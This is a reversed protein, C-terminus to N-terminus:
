NRFAFKLGIAVLLVGGLALAIPQWAFESKSKLQSAKLDKREQGDFADKVSAAAKAAGTVFAGAGAWDFGSGSSTDQM